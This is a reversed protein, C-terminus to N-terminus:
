FNQDNIAIALDNETQFTANVASRGPPGTLM